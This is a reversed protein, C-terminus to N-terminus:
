PSPPSLFKVSDTTRITIRKTYRMMNLKLRPGTAQTYQASISGSVPIDRAAEDFKVKQKKIPSTEGIKRPVYPLM